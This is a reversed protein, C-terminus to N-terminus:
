KLVFSRRFHFLFPKAHHRIAATRTQCEKFCAYSHGTSRPDIWHVLRFRFKRM